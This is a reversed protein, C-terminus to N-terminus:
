CSHDGLLMVWLQADQYSKAVQIGDAPTYRYGDGGYHPESTWTCRNTETRESNTSQGVKPDSPGQLLFPESSPLSLPEAMHVRFSDM